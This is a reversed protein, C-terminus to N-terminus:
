GRGAAAAAPAEAVLLELHEGAADAAVEVRDVLREILPGIGSVAADGLVSRSGGPRLPGVRLELHRRGTDAALSLCAGELAPGVHACLADALLQLDSLRDISFGCRAGLAVLVRGILPASLAVPAVAISVGSGDTAPLSDPADLGEPLRADGIAFWMALELGPGAHARLEMRSTLAEVVALGIGRGDDGPGVSRPGIGVGHDRVVVRVERPALALEVEMPGEGGPYAHMVVNNAAESVAAKIDEIAEGIGVAEAVGSLAERVLAVNEPRSALAVRLNTRESM